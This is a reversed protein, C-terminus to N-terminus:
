QLGAKAARAFQSFQEAWKAFDDARQSKFHTEMTAGLASIQPYGYSGAAGKIRHAYTTLSQWDLKAYATRLEDLRVPLGAVFEEVIDRMDPDDILLQSILKDAHTAPAGNM